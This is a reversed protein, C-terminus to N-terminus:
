QLLAPDAKQVHLGPEGYMVFLLGLPNHFRELLTYRAHVIADGLDLGGLLGRYLFRAFETAVRDPVETETGLVARHGKAIFFKPFSSASLPDTPGTRNSGCANLIIIARDAPSTAPVEIPPRRLAGLRHLYGSDLLGLTVPCRVPHHWPWWAWRVWCPIHQETSLNIAYESETERTTDCHCAFHHIQVQPGETIPPLHHRPDFLTDILIDPIDKPDEETPWPGEICVYSQLDEYFFKEERSTGRMRYRLFQVPLKPDNRIVSDGTSEAPLVRRVVASFALLRRANTGLQLLGGEDTMPGSGILPLMEFPFLYDHGHVEILPFGDDGSYGYWAKEFANQLDLIRNHDEDALKFLLQEGGNFACRLAEEAQGPKPRLQAQVNKVMRDLYVGAEQRAAAFRQRSTPLHVEEGTATFTFTVDIREEGHPVIDVVALPGTAAM